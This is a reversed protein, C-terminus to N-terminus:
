LGNFNLNKIFIKLDFGSFFCIKFDSGIKRYYLDVGFKFSYFNLVMEIKKVKNKYGGFIDKVDFFYGLFIWCWGFYVGLKFSVNFFFGM